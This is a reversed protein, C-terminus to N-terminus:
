EIIIRGQETLGMSHYGFLNMIVGVLGSLTAVNITSWYFRNIRHEIYFHSVAIAFVYVITGYVIFHYSRVMGFKGYFMTTAILLAMLGFMWFIDSAYEVAIKAYLFSSVLAMFSIIACRNDTTSRRVFLMTIIALVITIPLATLLHEYPCSSIEILEEKQFFPLARDNGNFMLACSKFWHTVAENETDDITM